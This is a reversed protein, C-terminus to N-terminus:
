GRPLTADMAHVFQDVYGAFEAQAMARGPAFRTALLLYQGFRARYMWYHCGDGREVVCWGEQEDAGARVGLDASRPSSEFDEAAAATPDGLLFTGAAAYASSFRAVEISVSDDGDEWSVRADGGAFVVPEPSSRRWRGSSMHSGVAVAEVLEAAAMTERASGGTQYVCGGIIGVLVVM